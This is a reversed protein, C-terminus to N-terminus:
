KITYQDGWVVWKCSVKDKCSFHPSKANFEGSEIRARNDWVEGGCKPCTKGDIEVKPKPQRGQVAPVFGNDSLSKTVIEHKAILDKQFYAPTMYDVNWGDKQCHYIFYRPPRKRRNAM